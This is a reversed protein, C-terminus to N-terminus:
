VTPSSGLTVLSKKLPPAWTIHWTEVTIGAEALTELESEKTFIEPQGSKIILKGQHKSETDHKCDLNILNNTRTETM